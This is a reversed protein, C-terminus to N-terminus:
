PSRELVSDALLLSAQQFSSLRPCIYMFPKDTLTPLGNVVVVQHTDAISPYASVDSGFFLMGECNFDLRLLM